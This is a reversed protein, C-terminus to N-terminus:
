LTKGGDDRQIRRIPDDDIRGTGIMQMAAFGRHQFIDDIFKGANAQVGASGNSPSSTRCMGQGAKRCPWYEYGLWACCFEVNRRQRDRCQLDRWVRNIAQPHQPKVAYAIQLRM